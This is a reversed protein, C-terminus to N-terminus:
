RKFINAPMRKLIIRHFILIHTDVSIILQDSCALVVNESFLLTTFDASFLYKTFLQRYERQRKTKHAIIFFHYKAILPGQAIFRSYSHFYCSFIPKQKLLTKKATFLKLDHFCIYVYVSMKTHCWIFICWHYVELYQYM